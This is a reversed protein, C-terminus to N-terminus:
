VFPDPIYNIGQMPEDKGWVFIGSLHLSRVMIVVCTEGSSSDM